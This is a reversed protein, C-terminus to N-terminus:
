TQIKKIRNINSIASISDIFECYEKLVDKQPNANYIFNNVFEQVMEKKYPRYFKDKQLKQLADMLEEISDIKWCATNEFYPKNSYRGDVTIFKPFLLVKNYLMAEILVSSLTGIVVDAWKILNTTHVSTAIASKEVVEGFDSKNSRTHPKIVLCINPAQAINTLCKKALETKDKLAGSSQAIYLVKLKNKDNVEIKQPPLIKDIIDFWERCYRSVGGVQVDSDAFGSTIAEKLQINNTVITYTPRAKKINGYVVLKFGETIPTMRVGHPLFIIPINNKQAATLIHKYNYIKQHIASDFVLSSVKKQKIIENMWEPGYFKQIIHKDILKTILYKQIVKITLFIPFFILKLIIDINPYSSKRFFLKFAKKRYLKLTTRYFRNCIFYSLFKYILSPKHYSYLYEIDVNYKKRLYELRYDNDLDYLYNLCLVAIDNKGSCAFKYVIPITHDIDNYRRIFFLIM